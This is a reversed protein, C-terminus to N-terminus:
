LTSILILDFCHRLLILGGGAIKTVFMFFAIFRVLTPQQQQTRALRGLYVVIIMDPANTLKVVSNRPLSLGGLHNVLVLHM